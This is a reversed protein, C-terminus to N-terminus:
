DFRIHIYNVKDLQSWAARKGLSNYDYDPGKPANITNVFNVYYVNGPEATFTCSHNSTWFKDVLPDDGATITEDYLGCEFRQATHNWIGTRYGAYTMIDCEGECKATLHVVASYTVNMSRNETGVYTFQASLETSGSFVANDVLSDNYVEIPWDNASGILRVNDLDEKFHWMSSRQPFMNYPMRYTLTTLGYTINGDAKVTYNEDYKEVEVSGLKIFYPAREGIDYTGVDLSESDDELMCTVLKYESSPSIGNASWSPYETGPYKDALQQCNLEYFDTGKELWMNELLFPFLFNKTAVSMVRPGFEKEGTVQTRYFEARHIIDQAEQTLFTRGTDRNLDVHSLLLRWTNYAFSYSRTFDNIEVSLLDEQFHKIYQLVSANNDLIHKAESVLNVGQAQSYVLQSTYLELSNYADTLSGLGISYQANLLTTYNNLVGHLPSSRPIIADYITLVDTAIRIGEKTGDIGLAMNVIKTKNGEGAKTLNAEFRLRYQYEAIQSMADTPNTASAIIDSTDIEMQTMLYGLELEINALEGNIVGLQTNMDTLDTDDGSNGWGMLKLMYGMADGGVEGTAGGVLGDLIKGIMAGYRVAEGGGITENNDSDINSSNSSSSGCGNMTFMMAVLIAAVTLAFRTKM